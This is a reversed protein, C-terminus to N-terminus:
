EHEGSASQVGASVVAPSLPSGNFSEHLVFLKALTEEMMIQMPSGKESNFEKLTFHAERPVDPDSKTNEMAKLMM